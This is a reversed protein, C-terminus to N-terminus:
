SVRLSMVMNVPARCRARDHAVNIWEMGKLHVTASDWRHRVGLTRKGELKGVFSTHMKTEGEHAVLEM